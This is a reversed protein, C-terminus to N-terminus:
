DDALALKAGLGVLISGGAMRMIRLAAGSRHLRDTLFGAIAVCILDASSFIVNVIGGLLLLQAWLPWAAAPDSFQPLFAVFFLATKPNFAEVAISEVFARRGSKGLPAPSAAAAGSPKRWLQVGLWVLYAAGAMKVVAYLVPAAHFLAAVGGAAAVVHLYGGVHIGLAAMLGARRGLAVTQATAYLMAPGPMYAFTVTAVFFLSLVDWNPM